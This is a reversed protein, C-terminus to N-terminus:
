RQSDISGPLEIQVKTERSNVQRRVIARKRGLSAHQAVLSYKGPGYTGPLTFEGQENTRAFINSPVVTVYGEVVPHISCSIIALEVPGAPRREWVGPKILEGFPMEAESELRFNYAEQQDTPEIRLMQGAVVVSHFPTLMVGRVSVVVPDLPVVVETTLPKALYVVVDPVPALEVKGSPLIKRAVVSGKIPGHAEDGDAALALSSLLWVAVAIFGIRLRRREM